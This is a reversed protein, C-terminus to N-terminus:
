QKAKQVATKALSKAFSYSSEEAGEGLDDDEQVNYFKKYEEFSRFSREAVTVPTEASEQKAM